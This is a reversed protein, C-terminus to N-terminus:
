MRRPCHTEKRTADANKGHQQQAAPRTDTRQRGAKACLPLPLGGSGASFGGRRVGGLFALLLDVLEGLGGLVQAARGAIRFADPEAAAHDVQEPAVIEVGGEAM